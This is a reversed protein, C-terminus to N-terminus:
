DNTQFVSGVIANVQNLEPRKAIGVKLGKIFSDETFFWVAYVAADIKYPEVAPHRAFWALEAPHYGDLRRAERYVEFELYNLNVPYPDNSDNIMTTIEQETIELGTQSHIQSDRVRVIVAKLDPSMWTQADIKLKAIAELGISQDIPVVVRFRFCGKVNDIFTEYDDSPYYRDYYRGADLGVFYPIASM